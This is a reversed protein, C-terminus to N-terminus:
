RARFVVSTGLHQNRIIRVMQDNQLDYIWVAQKTRGSVLTKWRETLVLSDQGALYALARFRDADPIELVRQVSGDLDIMAYNTAEQSRKCVLAAREAIWLAGDLGCERSLAALPESEMSEVDFSSITPDPDISYLFRSTPAPVVRVRAGFRHQVVSFKKMSGGGYRRVNLHAGDDFILVETQPLFRGHRGNILTARGGSSLKYYMLRFADQRNGPGSVSLLLQEDGFSGLEEIETDGLNALVEVSGDRLDLQGLYSGAGFYLYGSYEREAGSECASVFLLGLLLSM